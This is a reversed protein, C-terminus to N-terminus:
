KSRFLSNQYIRRDEDVYRSVIRSLHFRDYVQKANPFHTKIGKVYAKWFDSCASEVKKLDMRKSLYTMSEEVSKSNRDKVLSLVKKNELDYFITCYHHRRKRSIEDVGIQKVQPIKHELSELQEKDIRFLTSASLNLFRAATKNTLHETFAPVSKSLLATYNRREPTFNLYEIWYLNCKKCFFSHQSVNFIIKKYLYRGAKISRKKSGNHLIFHSCNSSKCIEKKHSVLNIIVTDNEEYISESTYGRIEFLIELLSQNQM